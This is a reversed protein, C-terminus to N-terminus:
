PAFVFPYVGDRPDLISDGLGLNLSLQVRNGGADGPLVWLFFISQGILQSAGSQDAVKDATRHATEQAADHQQGTNHQERGAGVKAAQECCSRCVAGALNGDAHRYSRATPADEALDQHLRKHDRDQSAREGARERPHCQIAERPPMWRRVIGHLEQHGWLGWYFQSQAIPVAFIKNDYVMGKWGITPLSALNPYDKIADGSVFPTLDQVKAELFSPLDPIVGLAEAPSM